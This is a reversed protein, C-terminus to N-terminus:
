ARLRPPPAEPGTSMEDPRAADAIRGGNSVLMTRGPEPLEVGEAVRLSQGLVEALRRQNEGPPLAPADQEREMERVTLCLPCPREGSFTDTVGQALGDEATYTVLMGAWAIVQLIAVPGGLLHLCGLAVLLHRWAGRQLLGTM